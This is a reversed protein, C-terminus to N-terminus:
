LGSNSQCSKQLKLDPWSKKLQMKQLQFRSPILVRADLQMLSDSTGQVTRDTSELTRHSHHLDQFYVLLQRRHFCRCCFITQLLLSRPYSNFKGTYKDYTLREVLKVLTGAILEPRGEVEPGLIINKESDKEAFPYGQPKACLYKLL